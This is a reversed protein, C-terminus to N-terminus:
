KQERLDQPPSISIIQLHFTKGLVLSNPSVVGEIEETFNPTSVEFKAIRNAVFNKELAKRHQKRSEVSCLIAGSELELEIRGQKDSVHANSNKRNTFNYRELDNDVSNCLLTAGEIEGQDVSSLIRVTVQQMRPVWTCYYCGTQTALAFAMAIVLTCLRNM